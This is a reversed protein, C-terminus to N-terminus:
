EWTYLEEKWSKPPAGKYLIKGKSLCHRLRWIKCSLRKYPKEYYEWCEGNEDVAIWKCWSSVAKQNFKTKM